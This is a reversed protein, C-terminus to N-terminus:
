FRRRIGITFGNQLITVSRPKEHEFYNYRYNAIIGFHHNLLYEYEFIAILRQTKTIATIGENTRNNVEFDPRYAFGILPLRVDLNLKNKKTLSYSVRGSAGLSAIGTLFSKPQDIEPQYNTISTLASIGGGLFISISNSGNSLRALYNYDFELLNNVALPSVISKILGKSYTLDISHLGNPKNRSFKSNILLNTGEYTFPSQFEDKNLIRNAGVSVSLASYKLSDQAFTNNIKFIIAFLILFSTTKM